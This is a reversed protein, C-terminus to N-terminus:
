QVVPYLCYTAISLVEDFTMSQSVLGRCRDPESSGYLPITWGKAANASIRFSPDRVSVGILTAHAVNIHARGSAFSSPIKVTFNEYPPLNFEHYVPHFKGSYLITGM